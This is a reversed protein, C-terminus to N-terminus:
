DSPPRRIRSRGPRGCEPPPDPRDFLWSEAAAIAEADPLALIKAAESDIWKARPSTDGWSPPQWGMALHMDTALSMDLHWRAYEPDLDDNMWTPALADEAWDDEPEGDLIGLLRCAISNARDGDFSQLRESIEIARLVSNRVTERQEDTLELWKCPIENREMEALSRAKALVGSSTTPSSGARRLLLRMYAENVAWIM